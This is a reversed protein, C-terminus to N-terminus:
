LVLVVVFAVYSSIILAGTVRTLGRFWYALALSVVTLGVYFYAVKLDAIGGSHVGIIAGPIMFGVIANLNNSNLAESLLVAGMGRRAFYVAAVANPLSTVGALVVAGLVINSWGLRSGMTTATHEMVISALVVVALSTLAVLADRWDGRTPHIAAALESEEERITERM